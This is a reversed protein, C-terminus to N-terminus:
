PQYYGGKANKIPELHMLYKLKQTNKDIEEASNKFVKIVPGNTVFARDYGIAQVTEENNGERLDEELDLDLRSVEEEDSSYEFATAKKAETKMTEREYKDLYDLEDRLQNIEYDDMDKDSLDAM